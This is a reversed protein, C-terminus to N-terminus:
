PASRGAPAVPLKLTFVSGEGPRSRVEIRGGMAEAFQRSLALGLGTGAVPGREAGAREFPQFLLAQQEVTLGPGSDHVSLALQGDPGAAADLRVWGGRRNFKIANSVLNSVIQVCRKRDGALPPLGDGAPLGQVRVGAAAATAAFMGLVDDALARADIPEIDLRLQGTQVASFDLIDDVLGLLHRGSTLIHPVYRQRADAGPRGAAGTGPGTATDLQLLQAFGLIANLPTRLEHSVRSLLMTKAQDAAAARDRERRLEEAQKAADIDTHTGIMRLPRGQADRRMVVGRSLVWKWHGNKCRIRHEDVYVPARGDFHAQRARRMAALDDPHTLADMSAPDGTLEDDRYGYLAKGQVSLTGTGHEIDWDWVGDSLSELAAKWLEGNDRLASETEKHATIDFFMGVRALAGDESPAAASSLRVWRVRGDLVIRFELTLPRGAAIAEAAARELLPRDDPHCVRYLISPEDRVAQPTVGFLSQVSRSIFAMRRSGDPYHLQRYVVGPVLDIMQALQAEGAVLRERERVRQSIEEVTGEYYAVRGDPGLVTHANESVWIREHTKHRRVESEFGTVRGSAALRAKFQERRGPQVYWETGIDHVSALLEAESACGNLRVLAPNARLMRGDPTSRYAGIPLFEFLSAFGDDNM